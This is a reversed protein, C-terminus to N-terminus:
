PSYRTGCVMSERTRFPKHWGPSEDGALEARPQVEDFLNLQSIGTPSVDNLMCGAKAYRHGDVWIRYLARVATAIIYHTDQTSTHLKEATRETHRM